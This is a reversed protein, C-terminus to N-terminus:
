THEPTHSHLGFPEVHIVVDIVQPFEDQICGEVEHALEHGHAVSIAPDVMIHLDVYVESDTGRTRIHHTDLIGQVGLVCAEIDVTPIRATDSLTVNATKFVGWATYLIVGAIVLSIIADASRFGLKVAVLSIIVGISVSVDSATHSADATLISSHLRLGERREYIAVFINVTLTAIMIVFSTTTVRAPQGGGMLREIATSGVSYAVLLLMAGIVLAAYTEYKGHGYPHDDDAPRSAFGMGVLGIINGAGDFMSHFGDATMAVSGSILGWALKASAVGINLGLIVWLVRKIERIRSQGGDRTATHEITM